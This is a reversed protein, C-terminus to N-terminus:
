QIKVIDEQSRVRILRRLESGVKECSSIGTVSVYTAGDDLRVGTPLICKVNVGYGDDITFSSPTINGVKGWTKVLLGINNLGKGDLPVPGQKGFQGGGLARNNLALPAITGTGYTTLIPNMICLEGNNDLLNGEVDVREGICHHPIPLSSFQIRIGSSRDDTEVYISDKFVATIVLGSMQIISNISSNKTDSLEQWWEDAGIDVASGQIRTQNDIDRWDSQVITTPIQYISTETIGKDRCPSDSAIHLGDILKPDGTINRSEVYDRFVGTEFYCNNRYAGYYSYAFISSSNYAIINNCVANQEAHTDDIFIAGGKASTNHTFTNNAVVSNSRLLFLGGGCDASDNKTIWNNAITGSGFYAGGRAGAHNGHIKNNLITGNTSTIAGGNAGAKNGAITCKRIMACGAIGGGSNTATNSSITSDIVKAVSRIGGGIDATNSTVTCNEVQCYGAVGGGNGGSTNGTFTNGTLVALKGRCYAGGGTERATNGSITCNSVPGFSYIGGGQMAINNTASCNAISFLPNPAYIGGGNTAFSGSPGSGNCITFGDIAGPGLQSTVVSGGSNGNITTISKKPSREALSRENGSFGGYVFVDPTITIRETYTGTAVWVQGGTASLANIAAQITRKPTSWSLGSNSDYGQLAVHMVISERNWAYGNSEDAGIDIHAGQIREQADIDRWEALAVTDDGADLCPSNPAIHKTELHCTALLPDVCINGDTGTPDTLGSYNYLKNGYVCNSKLTITSNTACVGSTNFAIISNAITPKVSDCFVGGGDEAVNESITNNILTPALTPTPSNAPIAACNDTIYIGGGLESTNWQIVNGILRAASRDCYIGGGDVAKNATIFNNAITPSAGVCFVGGGNRANASSDIDGGRITFGDIGSINDGAFASVVAGHGKADLISRNLEWNREDRASESGNFGGYVYVYPELEIQENYVGAAVWVEGGTLSAANIAAQVTRMALKWSSGDNKDDGIPSVRVTTPPVPTWIEGNSEDAGIDVHSAIFRAQGDMDLWDPQIIADDGTDICPSDAQIHLNGSVYSALKPDQSVNGSTGTPDTIGYYNNRFNGYVCNNKIVSTYNTIYVGSSNFAIINNELTPTCADAYIHVGAGETYASNNTITNNAIIPTGVVSIIKIGGDGNDYISNGAIIVNSTGSCQIGTATNNSIRNNLINGTIFTIGINNCEITNNSIQVNSGVSYVGGSSYGCSFHYGWGGSRIEFGDIVCSTSVTSPVFVVCGSTSGTGDLITLNASPNRQQRTTEIGAFGGYLSVQDKLVIKQSITGPTESAYLGASVWIEDGAYANNLANQVTNKAASWSDGTNTDSGSPHVYIVNCWSAGSLFCMLACVIAIFMAKTRINIM